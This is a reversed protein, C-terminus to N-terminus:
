PKSGTGTSATGNTSNGGAGGAGSTSGAGGTSGAGSAGGKGAAGGAPASTKGAPTTPKSGGTGAPTKVPATSGTGNAPIFQGGTNSTRAGNGGGGGGFTGGNGGAAGTVTVPTFGTVNSLAIPATMDVWRGARRTEPAPGMAGYGGIQRQIYDPARVILSGDYYKISAVSDDLWADPEILTTILTVLEQAKEEPTARPPAEGPTGFIGGGSGGGGSGGGGGGSGGGGGGFGGGGGGGSGGGGGGGSGGGQSIAQNLNFEPANTFDPAQFLLDRIPYIRMEQASRANLRSKPGVEVFGKRLQWTSPETTSLELMREIVTIAPAGNTTLTIPAEPDIGGSAGPDTSWRYVIDIGLLQKVYAFADKAPTADFNVTIGTSLLTRLMGGRTMHMDAAQQAARQKLVADIRTSLDQASASAAVSTVAAFAALLSTGPRRAICRMANVTLHAAARHM